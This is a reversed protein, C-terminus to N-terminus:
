KPFLPECLEQARAGSLCLRPANVTENLSQLSRLAHHERNGKTTKLTPLDWKM